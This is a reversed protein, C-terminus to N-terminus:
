WGEGTMCQLTTGLASIYSVRDQGTAKTITAIGGSPVLFDATTAVEAAGSSSYIRIYAPNAGTNVLRVSKDTPDLNAVLAGAAPSLVQNTGYHPSFPQKASM